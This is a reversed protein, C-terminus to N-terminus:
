PRFSPSSYPYRVSVSFLLSIRDRRSNPISVEPQANTTGVLTMYAADAELMVKRDLEQQQLATPHAANAVKPAAVPASVVSSTVPEKGVVASAAATPVVPNTVSVAASSGGPTPTQGM